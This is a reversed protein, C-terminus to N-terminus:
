SIGHGTFEAHEGNRHMVTCQQTSGPSIPAATITYEPLLSGELASAIDVCDAVAIGNSNNISRVTYNIASASGLSEAVEIVAPQHTEARKEVLGPIATAALIALVVLTMVIEVISLGREHFKM